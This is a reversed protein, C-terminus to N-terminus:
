QAAFSVALFTCLCGVFHSLINAFLVGLLPSGQYSLQDLIQRCRLLCRNLEQTPFIRQLLYLSGVGTNKPKGQPEASLSGAQLTPSRSEIGPQSSIIGQLLSLSGVGLSKCVSYLIRVVIILLFIAWNLQAFSRFLGKELSVCIILFYMFLHEVDNAM